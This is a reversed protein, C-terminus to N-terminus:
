RVVIQWSKRTGDKLTVHLIYIGRESPAQIQTENSFNYTKERIGMTSYIEASADDSALISITGHPAVLTPAVSINSKGDGKGQPNMGCSEIRVGDKRTLIVSYEAQTDLKGDNEDYDPAYYWAGTAGPITDGNKLWQYETFEFGGNVDSNPVVLVDDWKQRFISSAYRVTFHLPISVERECFDDKVMLECDYIDPTFEELSATFANDEITLEIDKNKTHIYAGSIEGKKVKYNITLLTSEDACYETKEMTVELDLCNYVTIHRTIISDCNMSNGRPITATYDGSIYYWEGLWHCSDYTITDEQITYYSNVGVEMPTITVHSCDTKVTDYRLIPYITGPEPEELCDHDGKAKITDPKVVQIYVSVTDKYDSGDCPNVTHTIAKLDYWGPSEYAYKFSANQETSQDITIGDGMNWTVNAVDVSFFPEIEISDGICFLSDYHQLNIYNNGEIIISKEVSASGVSYGYSEREGYGYAHAVFPRKGELTYPREATGLRDLRAFWYKDNSGTVPEFYQQLNVTQRQGNEMYSITMDKCNNKETVINVYHTNDSGYTTFTVHSIGQEIPNIVVMAPDANDSGDYKNSTMFLHVSTPCSTEIFCSQGTVDPNVRGSIKEGLEFEWYQKKDVAFNFTHMLIGNIRVETGDNIAMVRIIDRKRTMSATVAYRTGWFATPIAQSYLHDRDKTNDYDTWGYKKYYPLNTHPNGQFVAIRKGDRATVKTGSLDSEDGENNGTWVYYVQGKKLTPTTLIGTKGTNTKTTLDIDAITNDETAVIAFHSGQPKDQHDSAPYTQVIYNDTLATTPLVNTADFSKDKFNSAYVSINETSTIHVATNLAQETNIVTYCGVKDNNSNKATGNYLQEQFLQNATVRRSISYGTYPNEITVECNKSASISLSLTIKKDDGDLHDASLFTVWFDKGETGASQAFSKVSFIALVFLLICINKKM